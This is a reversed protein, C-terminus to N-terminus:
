ETYEPDSPLDIRVEAITKDEVKLITYTIGDKELKLGVDDDPIRDMMSILFGNLTDNEEDQYSIGLEVEIDALATLGKVNYSRDNIRVIDIEVEDHEDFINGVIEELIDEMAVLGATQGYEDVVIQIHVKSSQMNKFISNIKSTEPVFAAKQMLGTLECVKLQRYEDKIYFKLADKIHIIGIINDISDKYVPFRSFNEEAIFEIAQSLTWEGDIASINKRHTMIDSAALDDLDFINTIMEAESELITGADQGEELMSVIEDEVTEERPKFLRSFFGARSDSEM